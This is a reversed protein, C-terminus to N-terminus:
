REVDLQQKKWAYFTEMEDLNVVVNNIKFNQFCM